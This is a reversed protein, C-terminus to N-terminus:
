LFNARSFIPRPRWIWSHRSIDSCLFGKAVCGAAKGAPAARCCGRPKSSLIAPNLLSHLFSSAVPYDVPVERQVSTLGQNASQLLNIVSWRAWRRFINHKVRPPPPHTWSRVRAGSGRWMLGARSPLEDFILAGSPWRRSPARNKSLAWNGIREPPPNKDGQNAKGQKSQSARPRCPGSNSLGLPKGTM